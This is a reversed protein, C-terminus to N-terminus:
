YFFGIKKPPPLIAAHPDSKRFTLEKRIRSLHTPTIQLYSAMEKLSISNIIDPYRKLLALYREKPTLRHLDLYTMYAQRFLAEAFALRMEPRQCLEMRVVDNPCLIVDADVAAVINTKARGDCFTSIYDGVPTGRFAFGTIRENGNNDVVTYKFYGKLVLGAYKMVKDRGGQTRTLTEGKRLHHVTGYKKFIQKWFNMDIAEIYTNFHAM